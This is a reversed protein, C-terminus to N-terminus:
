KWSEIVQPNEFIEDLKRFFPVIDGYDLARHDMAFTIPLVRRPEVSENGNEDTVVWPRRQAANIAFATIQPPIIELLFCMGKQERHINKKSNNIVGSKLLDVVGDGVMESHLGLDKKDKLLECIANPIGGIGLQM